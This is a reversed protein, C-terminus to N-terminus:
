HPWPESEDRAALTTGHFDARFWGGNKAGTTARFGGKPSNRTVTSRGLAHFAGSPAGPARYYFHITQGVLWTWSGGPRGRLKGTHVTGGGQKSARYGRVETQFKNEATAEVFVSASRAGIIERSSRVEARWEGSEVVPAETEFRGADDTRTEAFDRWGCTDSEQFVIVVTLGAAPGSGGDKVVELSGTLRVDGGRPVRDPRADFATFRAEARVGRRDVAFGHVATTRGARTEVLWDGEQADPPLRHGARWDCPPPQAAFDLPVRTGDPARLHGRLGTANATSVEVVLDVPAGDLIIPQPTVQIAIIDPPTQM